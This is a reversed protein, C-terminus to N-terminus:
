PANLLLSITKPHKYHRTKIIIKLKMGKLKTVRRDGYADCQGFALQLLLKEQYSLNVIVITGRGKM